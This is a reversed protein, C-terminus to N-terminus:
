SPKGRLPPGLIERVRARAKEAAESRASEAEDMAANLADAAEAARDLEADLAAPFDTEPNRSNRRIFAVRSVEWTEEGDTLVVRLGSRNFGRATAASEEVVEVNVRVIDRM